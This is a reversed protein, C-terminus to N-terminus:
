NPNLITDGNQAVDPSPGSYLRWCRPLVPLNLISTRGYESSAPWQFSAQANTSGHSWSLAQSLHRLPPLRRRAIGRNSIARRLAQTGDVTVDPLSFPGPAARHGNAQATDTLIDRICSPDSGGACAGPEEQSSGDKYDNDGAGSRSDVVLEQGRRYDGVTQFSFETGTERPRGIM